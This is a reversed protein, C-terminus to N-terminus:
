EVRCDIVRKETVIRDVKVDHGSSPVTEVIQLEFAPALVPIRGAVPALLRDYCGDGRGLRNGQEDFAIGPIVFLEIAEIEVARFASTKPEPFGAPGPVLEGVPDKLESLLLKKSGPEMRPVAIRKGLSLAHAIMGTTEVESGFSVYFQIWNAAHVADIEFLKQLIDASRLVRQATTLRKRRVLVDERLRQKEDDLTSVLPM